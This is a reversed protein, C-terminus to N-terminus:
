SKTAYKYELVWLTRERVYIQPYRFLFAYPNISKLYM